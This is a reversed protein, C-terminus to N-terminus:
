VIKSWIGTCEPVRSWNNDVIMSSLQEGFFFETNNIAEKVDPFRYDTRIEQRSFDWSKELWDYYNALEATPPSPIVSGTTLTEMIIIVGQDRVVRHMEKLVIDLETQWDLHWSCTHGLVWGATLVDFCDPSMPLAGASGQLLLWSGASLSRQRVNEQLMEWYLDLGVVTFRPDSLLLPIRGTGSGIDLVRSVDATLLKDICDYLNGDVDEYEIMRHYECAMNSYINKFHDM